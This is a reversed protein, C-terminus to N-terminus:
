ATAGRAITVADGPRLGFTRSASGHNVVVAVFGQSDVILAPHGQPVDTFTAVVPLDHAGVALPPRLGAVSLDEPTVNLQVNGFGDV